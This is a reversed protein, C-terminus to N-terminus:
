KLRVVNSTTSRSMFGELKRSWANLAARKEKDYAYRDYIATISSESHNLVKGVNFQSHGLATMHSAATRRLDHTTFKAIDFNGIRDWLRATVYNAALPGEGRGPFLWPSEGSREVIEKQLSRALPSLPVRHDRGNKAREAPITWWGDEFETKRANVVEGRRQGTVLCFLLVLQITRSLGAEPLQKLFTRLEADDLVRDRPREKAPYDIAECPSAEIMDRQIAFRFVQRLLQLNRNAATPADRDMIKDLLRVIDKRKIDKVKRNGFAPIADYELTLKAEEWRKRYRKAWREIWLDVLEKFTEAERETKRKTVVLEGPDIGKELQKRAWSVAQNADGLSLAPYTGLTMRRPRGNFHYVFVFSKRGSPAVRVGFGRGDWVEYRSKRPRLAKIRADTLKKTM